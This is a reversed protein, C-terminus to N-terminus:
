CVYWPKLISGVPDKTLRDPGYGMGRDGREDKEGGQGSIMDQSGEVGM